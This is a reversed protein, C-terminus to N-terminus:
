VAVRESEGVDAETDVTVNGQGDVQVAFHTLDDPAPGALVRGNADFRAGHCGCYIGTGNVSGRRAINCGQHSCTLTLAYLGGSDRGIAVPQGGLARLTGVPTDDVTGAGVVGVREPDVGPAGLCGTMTGAAGAAGVAGVVAGTALVSLFQRRTTESSRDDV